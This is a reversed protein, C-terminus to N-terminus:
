QEDYYSDPEEKEEPEEPEEEEEEEEEEDAYEKTVTVKALTHFTLALILFLIFIDKM